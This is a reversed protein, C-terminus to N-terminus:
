WRMLMLQPCSPTPTISRFKASQSIIHQVLRESQSGLLSWSISTKHFFKQHSLNELLLSLTHCKCPVCESKLSETDVSCCYVVDDECYGWLSLPTSLLEPDAWLRMALFYRLLLLCIWTQETLEHGLWQEWTWLSSTCLAGSPTVM